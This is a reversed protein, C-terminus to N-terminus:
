PKQDKQKKKRRIWPIGTPHVYPEIRSLALMGVFMIIGLPIWLLLPIPANRRRNADKNARVVDRDVTTTVAVIQGVVPSGSLTAALLVATVM